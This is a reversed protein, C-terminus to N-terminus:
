LLLPVLTLTGPRVAAVPYFLFCLWAPRAAAALVHSSSITVTPQNIQETRRLRVKSILGSDRNTAKIATRLCTPTLAAPPSANARCGGGVQVDVFDRGLDSM